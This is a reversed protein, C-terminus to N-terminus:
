HYGLFGLFRGKHYGNSDILNGYKKLKKLKEDYCWLPPSSTADGNQVCLISSGNTIFAKKVSM